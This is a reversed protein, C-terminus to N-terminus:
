QNYKLSKNGNNKKRSYNSLGTASITIIAPLFQILYRTRGAEFLFLFLLGGFISIQMWLLYWNKDSYFYSYLLLGISLVIWVLQMVLAYYIYNEGEVYVYTRIITALRTQQIRNLWQIPPRTQENMVREQFWGFMGEGTMWYYKYFLHGVFSTFNYRSLRTEIESLALKNRDKGSSNTVEPSLDAHINGSYTLGLDVYYLMTRKKDSEYKVFNQFRPSVSIVTSISLFIAVMLLLPKWNVKIDINKKIIWFFGVIFLSIIFIAVTPRFGYAIALIVGSMTMSLRDKNRIFSVLLYIFYSLLFLTISDSYTYIYQPSFGIIFSMLVFSIDAVKGGLFLKNTKYVFLISFDIFVVNWIALIFLLNQGALLYNLKFWLLLLFNNPYFSIYDTNRAFELNTAINYVTETDAKALSLSSIIIVLQFLLMPIILCYKNRICFRFIKKFFKSFHFSIFILPLLLLLFKVNTSTLNTYDFNLFEFLFFISFYVWFVSLVFFISNGIKLLQKM